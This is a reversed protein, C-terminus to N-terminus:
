LVEAPHDVEPHEVGAEDVCNLVSELESSKLLLSCGTVSHLEFSSIKGKSSTFYIVHVHFLYFFFFFLESRM